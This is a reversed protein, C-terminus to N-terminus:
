WHSHRMALLQADAALYFPSVIYALFALSIFDVVSAIYTSFEFGKILSTISSHHTFYCVWM